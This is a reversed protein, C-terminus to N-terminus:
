SENDLQLYFKSFPAPELFRDVWEPDTKYLIQKEIFYQWINTENEEVM